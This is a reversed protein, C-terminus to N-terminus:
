DYSNVTEALASETHAWRLSVVPIRLLEVFAVCVWSPVTSQMSVPRSEVSMALMLLILPIPWRDSKRYDRGLSMPRQGNPALRLCAISLAVVAIVAAAAVVVAPAAAAAAAIVVATPQRRNLTPSTPGIPLALSYSSLDDMVLSVM